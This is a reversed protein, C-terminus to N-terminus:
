KSYILLFIWLLPMLIDAIATLLNHVQLQYNEVMERIHNIGALIFLPAVLVITALWFEKGHWICMLGGIAYGLEAYGLEKQFPSGKAWGIQGAVMDSKFVHGIFGILGSLSITITLQYFL